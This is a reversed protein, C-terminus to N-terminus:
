TQLTMSQWFIKFTVITQKGANKGTWSVACSCRLPAGLCSRAEGCDDTWVLLKDSTMAYVGCQAWVM